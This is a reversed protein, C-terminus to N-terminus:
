PLISSCGETFPASQWICAKFTIQKGDVLTPIAVTSVQAPIARIPKDPIPLDCWYAFATAYVM